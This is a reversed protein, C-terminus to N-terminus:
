KLMGLFLFSILPLSERNNFMIKMNKVAERLHVKVTNPSINLQDAVEKQKMGLVHCMQYVQRQQKPLKSIAVHIYDQTDKLIINAESEHDAETWGSLSLTNSVQDLKIKKLADLTRNVSVARLYGGFNSVERLESRKRWIKIFVEQVIEEALEKSKLYRFAYTYVRNRYHDFLRGFAIEDDKAIKMLLVKEEALEKFQMISLYPM